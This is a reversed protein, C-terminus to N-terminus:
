EEDEVDEDEDDLDSEDSYTYDEESAAALEKKRAKRKASIHKVLKYIAYAIVGTIGLGALVKLVETKSGGKAVVETAVGIAEENTMIEIADM